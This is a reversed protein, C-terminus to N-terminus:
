NKKEIEVNLEEVKLKIKRIVELKKTFVEENTFKLFRVGYQNLEFEREPDNLQADVQEHYKGDIEIALQIEHCYFDVIYKLMPVQRHFEVGLQKKRILEWVLYEATTINKRLERAKQRLDANYPIIQNRM